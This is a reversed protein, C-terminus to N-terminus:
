GYGRSVPVSVKQFTHERHAHPLEMSSLDPFLNMLSEKAARTLSLIQQDRKGMQGDREKITLKHIEQRFNEQIQDAFLRSFFEMM